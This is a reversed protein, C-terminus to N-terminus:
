SRWMPAPTHRNMKGVGIVRHLGGALVGRGDACSGRLHWAAFCAYIRATLKDSGCPRLAPISGNSVGAAPGIALLRRLRARDGAATAAFRQESGEGEGIAKDVTSSVPMPRFRPTGSPLRRGVVIRPELHVSTVEGEVVDPERM